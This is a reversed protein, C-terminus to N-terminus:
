WLAAKLKEGIRKLARYVHQQEASRGKDCLSRWPVKGEGPKPPKGEYLKRAIAKADCGKLTLEYIRREEAPLAEVAENFAATIAPNQTPLSRLLHGGGLDEIRPRKTERQSNRLQRHDLIVNFWTAVSSEGRFKRLAERAQACAAQKLEKILCDKDDARRKRSRVIWDCRKDLIEQWERDNWFEEFEKDGGKAATLALETLRDRKPGAGHEGSM